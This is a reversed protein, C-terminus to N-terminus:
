QSIRFHETIDDRKELIDQEFTRQWPDNHHIVYPIGRANRRDSVIGIHNKFVIIDGGQWESIEHIDTTLSIAKRSFYIRLNRVRRFDINPDPVEDSYDEPHEAIDESVLAMLDYGAGRLAWAVVDTCVGYGDDPYGGAYYSSKYKPRTEVYSVANELIDVQDDVGDGDADVSSHIQPIDEAYTSVPRLPTTHQYLLPVGVIILVLAILCIRVLTKFVKKIM